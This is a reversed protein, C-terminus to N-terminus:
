KKSIKALKQFREMLAKDIPPLDDPDEPEIPPPSIPIDTPNPPHVIHDPCDIMGSPCVCPHTDTTLYVETGPQCGQSTPSGVGAPECCCKHCDDTVGCGDPIASNAQDCDLQTAYTGPYTANGQYCGFVGPLKGENCRWGYDCRGDDITALPNYNLAGPDMCGYYDCCCTPTGCIPTCDQINGNDITPGTYNAGNPVFINSTPFTVTALGSWTYFYNYANQDLCTAYECCSIDNPDPTGPNVSDCGGNASSNGSSPNQPVALWNGNSLYSAYNTTNDACGIPPACGSAQCSALDPFTPYGQNAYNQYQPDTGIPGLCNADYCVYWDYSWYQCSGDDITALPDYNTANSDTCGSTPTCSCAAGGASIIGIQCPPGGPPCNAMNWNEVATNVATASMNLNVSVGAWILDNIMDEWISYYGMSNNTPYNPANILVNGIPTNQGSAVFVIGRRWVGGSNADMCADPNYVNTIPSEIWKHQQMNAGQFGNSINTIFNVAGGYTGIYGMDTLGACNSYLQETILGKISERILNRLQLKKMNKM